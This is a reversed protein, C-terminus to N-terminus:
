LFIFAYDFITVDYFSYDLIFLKSSSSLCFYSSDTILPELSVIALIGIPTEKKQEAEEGFYM